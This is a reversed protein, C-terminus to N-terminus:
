LLCTLSRLLKWRDQRRLISLTFHCSLIVLVSIRARVLMDVILLRSSLACALHAPCMVRMSSFRMGFCSNYPSSASPWLLLPRGFSRKLSQRLDVRFVRSIGDSVHSSLAKSLGPQRLLSWLPERDASFWRFFSASSLRSCRFAFVLALVLGGGSEVRFHGTQLRVKRALIPKILWWLVWLSGSHDDHDEDFVISSYWWWIHGVTYM